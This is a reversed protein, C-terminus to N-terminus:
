GPPCRQSPEEVRDPLSTECEDPEERRRQDRETCRPDHRAHVRGRRGAGVARTPRTVAVRDHVGGEVGDLGIQVRERVVDGREALLRTRNERRHRAVLGVRDVGGGRLPRLEDGVDLRPALADAARQVLYRDDACRRCGVLQRGVGDIAM